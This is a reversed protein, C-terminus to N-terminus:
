PFQVFCLPCFLFLLYIYLQLDICTSKIKLIKITNLSTWIFFLLLILLFSYSLFFQTHMWHIVVLVFCIKSSTYHWKTGFILIIIIVANNWLDNHFDYWLSVLTLEASQWEKWFSIINHTLANISLSWSTQLPIFVFFYWYILFLLQLPRICLM